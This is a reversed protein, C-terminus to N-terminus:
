VSICIHNTSSSVKVPSFFCCKAVWRSSIQVRHSSTHTKCSKGKGCCMCCSRSLNFWVLCMLNCGGEGCECVGALGWGCQSAEQMGNFFLTQKWSQWKRWESKLVHGVVFQRQAGAPTPCCRHVEDMGVTRRCGYCITALCSAWLDVCRWCLEAFFFSFLSVIWFFLHQLCREKYLWNDFVGGKLEEGVRCARVSQSFCCLGKIVRSTLRFLVM